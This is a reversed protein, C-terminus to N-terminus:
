IQVNKLWINWLYKEVFIIIGAGILLLILYIIGLSVIADCIQGITINSLCYNIFESINMEEIM